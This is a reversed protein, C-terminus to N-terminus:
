RGDPLLTRIQRTLRIAEATLDHVSRIPVRAPPWTARTSSGPLARRFYRPQCRDPLDVARGADPVPHAGGQDQAKARTIRQEM